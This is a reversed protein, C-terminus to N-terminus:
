SLIRDRCCTKQTQWSESLFKDPFNNQENESLVVINWGSVPSTGIRNETGCICFKPIVSSRCGYSALIVHGARTNWSPVHQTPNSSDQTGALTPHAIAEGSSVHFNKDTAVFILMDLEHWRVVTEASSSSSSLGRTCGGELSFAGFHSDEAIRLTGVGNCLFSNGTQRSGDAVNSCSTDPVERSRDSSTELQLFFRITFSELVNAVLQRINAVQRVKVQLM